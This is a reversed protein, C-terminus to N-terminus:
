LKSQLGFIKKKKKGILNAKLKLNFELTKRKTGLDLDSKKININKRM